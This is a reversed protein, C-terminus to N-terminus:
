GVRLSTGNMNSKWTIRKAQERNCSSIVTRHQAFMLMSQRVTTLHINTTTNTARNLCYEAMRRCIAVFYTSASGRAPYSDVLCFKVTASDPCCPLQLRIFSGGSYVRVSVFATVSRFLWHHALVYDHSWGFVQKMRVRASICVKCFSSVILLPGSLVTLAM